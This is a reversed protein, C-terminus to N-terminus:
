FVLTGCKDWNQGMNGFHKWFRPNMLESMLGRKAFIQRVFTDLTNESYSNDSQNM